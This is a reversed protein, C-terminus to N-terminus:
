ARIKNIIVRPQSSKPILANPMVKIRQVLLQNPYVPDSARELCIKKLIIGEIQTVPTVLFLFDEKEVFAFSLRRVLVTNASAAVLPRLPQWSKVELFVMVDGVDNCFVM